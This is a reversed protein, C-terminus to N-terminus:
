LKDLSIAGTWSHGAPKERIDELRNLFRLAAYDHPKCLLLARIAQESDVWHQMYFFQVAQASLITLATDQCPTYVNIAESKGKVIVRDFLRLTLDEPLAIATAYSLLIGTGFAKNAGELRTAV